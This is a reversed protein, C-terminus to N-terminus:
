PPNIMSILSSLLAVILPHLMVHFCMLGEQVAHPVEEHLWHSQPLPPSQFKHYTRIALGGPVSTGIHRANLCVM